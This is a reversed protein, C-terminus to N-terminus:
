MINCFKRPPKEPTSGGVEQFSLSEGTENLSLKTEENYNVAMSDQDMKKILPTSTPVSSKNRQAPSWVRGFGPSFFNWGPSKESGSETEGAFRKIEVEDFSNDARRKRSEVSEYSVNRGPFRSFSHIPKRGKIDSNALPTYKEVVAPSDLCIISQSSSAECKDKADMSSNSKFSRRFASFIGKPEEVATQGISENITVISEEKVSDEITIVSIDKASDNVKGETERPDLDEGNVPELNTQNDSKDCEHNKKLSAEQVKVPTGRRKLENNKLPTSERPRLERKPPSVDKVVRKNAQKKPTNEKKTEIVNQHLNKKDEGIEQEEELQVNEEPELGNGNQVVSNEKEEQIVTKRPKLIKEEEEVPEHSGNLMIEAETEM